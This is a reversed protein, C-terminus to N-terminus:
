GWARGRWWCRQWSRRGGRRGRIHHDTGSRPPTAPEAGTLPGCSRALESWGSRRRCRRYPSPHRRFRRSACPPTGYRWPLSSAPSPVREAASASGSGCGPNCNQFVKHARPRERLAQVCLIRAHPHLQPMHATLRSEVEARAACETLRNQEELRIPLRGAEQLLARCVRLDCGRDNLSDPSSSNATIISAIRSRVSEAAGVLESLRGILRTDAQM